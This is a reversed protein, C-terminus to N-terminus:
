FNQPYESIERCEIVYRVRIQTTDYVVYENYNLHMADKSVPPNPIIEGLPIMAGNPLFISGKPNPGTRGYGLVSHHTDNPLGKVEEAAMLRKQKGLAVECLFVYRKPFKANKQDKQEHQQRFRQLAYNNGAGSYQYSKDFVDAFYVGEGFMSGTRRADAPAIRFGSQLIGVINEARTGHWLLVRNGVKSWNKISERENKREIAYINAIFNKMNKGLRGVSVYEHLIKFEDTDPAVRGIKVGLTDVVYDVPNIERKRFTAACLLKIAIEFYMLDNLQKRLEAVAWSTTVPPISEQMHRNSPILEYYDNTLRTLEDAHKFVKDYDKNKRALEYEKIEADLARLITDADQLREKSLDQLPLMKDDLHFEFRLINSFVKSNCIRRVWKFVPHELHTNPLEPDSYNFAKLYTDANRLKKAVTVLKYKKDIRKFDHREEWLNGTKSKFISCFEKKADDLNNFPTQQYQGTDGVRGWRTFVIYIDRVKERLIQMKYFTNGSYYGYSIEVKIMYADFPEEGDYVVEHNGVALSDPQTRLEEQVKKSTDQHAKCQELWHEFDDEFNYKSHPFEQAGIMSTATKQLPPGANSDKAKCKKLLCNELKGSEQLRAYDLPTNGNKDPLNVDVMSALYELLSANEYAGFERPKVVHHILTRGFKDTHKLDVKKGYTKIFNRTEEERNQRILYILPNYGEEDGANLDAGLEHLQSVFDLSLNQSVIYTLVTHERNQHTFRKNIDLGHRTAESVFDKVFGMANKAFAGLPTCGKNDVCNPDLKKELLTKALKLCGSECAYHLSNKGFNDTLGFNIHKAELKSLIKQYLDGQTIKSSNAAFLHCLNQKNTNTTQYVGADEQKLLLTYVYKFKEHQFCDLIALSLDFNYSIMLFAISQWNRRIALSFTTCVKEKKGFKFREENPLQHQSTSPFGKAFLMGPKMMKISGGFGSRNFMSTKHVKEDGDSSDEGKNSDAELVSESSEYEAKNAEDDTGKIQKRAVKKRRMPATSAKKAHMHGHHFPHEEEEQEVQAPEEEDSDKWNEERQKDTVVKVSHKLDAEKQILFICMNQHGNILCENLPTNGDNNVNNINAGHKLLYLMSIVSGRQAAYNAPTNGWKDRVDVQPKPEVRSVINSVTEIPDIYSINFPDGIKVFAYHLPTRGRSDVANLNAGSSLLCNEIENSADADANSLNIAWHLCTRGKNDKLNPNAGHNLFVEMTPLHSNKVAQLLPYNGTRDQSNLNPRFELLKTTFTYKRQKVSLLLPKMGEQNELEINAGSTVLYEIIKANEDTGGNRNIYALLVTEGYVSIQNPDLKFEKILFEVLTPISSYVALHLLSYGTSTAPKKNEQISIKNELSNRIMDYFFDFFNVPEDDSDDAQEKEEEDGDNQDQKKAKKPNRMVLLPDAGHKKMLKLFEIFEGIKDRWIADSEREIQATEETTLYMGDLNPAQESSGFKKAFKERGHYFSRAGGKLGSYKARSKTAHMNGHAEEEDEDEDDGEDDSDNGEEDEPIIGGRKPKSKKDASSKKGQKANLERKKLKLEHTLRDRETFKFVPGERAFKQLAIHLAVQGDDNYKNLLQGSKLHKLLKEVVVYFSGKLVVRDLFHFVTSGSETVIEIDTHPQDLLYDLGDINSSTIARFVPTLGKKDRHNIDAGCEVFLNFYKKYLARKGAKLESIEELSMDAKIERQALNEINHTLLHDFATLGDEDALNPDAKKERLLYSVHNHNETNIAKIANSVLSRGHDDVCNVDTGPFDLMKRLCSFYSKMLAVATPSLKWSNQSNPNAGAKLLIDVVDPYGYACAYHLPTNGSSDPDDFLSGQQLLLSVIRLNGNRAAILLASRKSKDKALIKGGVSLLYEVLEYHGAGAALMLPTLRGPGALGAPVQGDEILIKVCDLQGAEAAHHIATFSQKDKALPISRNEQLLYKLVQTRGARAAYMLPTKKLNDVDRPDVNLAVLQKMPEDSVCLAAFHVPKRMQGDMVAFESSTDLLKKLVDAHPNLCAMHLPTLNGYGFAKKIVSAKKMDKVANANTASLVKAYFESVGFGDNKLAKEFLFIAVDKNGYMAAEAACGVVQHEYEPFCGLFKKVKEVDTNRNTVFYKIDQHGFGERGHTAEQVFANNGERGGRSLAVKRTAVGYAYKDNYGTDIQQIYTVSDTGYKIPNKVDKQAEITSIIMEIDGRDVMLKFATTTNEIGWTENLRTIKRDSRLIKELLKKNGTKAARILERNSNRSSCDFNPVVSDSELQPHLNALEVSPNWKGKKFISPKLTKSKGDAGKGKKSVPAEEQEEEEEAESDDGGRKVKKGVAQSKVGVIKRVKQSKVSSAREKPKKVSKSEETQADEEEDDEAEDEEEGSSEPLRFKKIASLLVKYAKADVVVEKIKKEESAAAAAAKKSRTKPTPEFVTDIDTHNVTQIIHKVKLTDGATEPKFKNESLRKFFM